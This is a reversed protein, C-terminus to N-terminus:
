TSGFVAGATSGGSRVTLFLASPKTRFDQATHFGKVTRRHTIPLWLHRSSGGGHLQSSSAKLSEGLGPPATIFQAEPKARFGRATLLQTLTLTRHDLLAPCVPM